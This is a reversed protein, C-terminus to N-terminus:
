FLKLENKKNACLQITEFIAIYYYCNLMLWKSACMEVSICSIYSTLKDTIENKLSNSSIQKCVFITLTEVCITEM